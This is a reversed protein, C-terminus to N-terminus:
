IIIVCKSVSLNNTPIKVIKNGVKKHIFPQKLILKVSKETLPKNNIKNYGYTINYGVM